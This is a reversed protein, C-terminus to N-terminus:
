NENKINKLAEIKTETNLQWKEIILM